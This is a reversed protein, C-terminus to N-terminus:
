VTIIKNIEDEIGKINLYDFFDQQAKRNESLNCDKPNEYLKIEIRNDNEKRSFADFAILKERTFFSITEPGFTMKWCIMVLFPKYHLIRGPNNSIDIEKFGYQSTIIKEQPIELGRMKYSTFTESSQLYQDFEDCEYGVRFGELKYLMEILPLYKNYNDYSVTIFINDSHGELCGPAITFEFYNSKYLDYYFGHHKELIKTDKYPIIRQGTKKGRITDFYDVGKQNEDNLFDILANNVCSQEFSMIIQLKNLNM